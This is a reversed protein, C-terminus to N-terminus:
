NHEAVTFINNNDRALLGCLRPPPSPRKHRKHYLKWCRGGNIFVFFGRSMTGNKEGGRTETGPKHTHHAQKGGSREKDRASTTPVRRARKVAGGCEGPRCRDLWLVFTDLQSRSPLSKPCSRRRSRIPPFHEACPTQKDPAASTTYCRGMKGQQQPAVPSAVAPEM